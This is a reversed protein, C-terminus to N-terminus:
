CCIPIATCENMIATTGRMTDGIIDFPALGMARKTEPFGHALNQGLCPAVIKTEEKWNM